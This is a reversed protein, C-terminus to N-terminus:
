IAPKILRSLDQYLKRVSTKGGFVLGTSFNFETPSARWDYTLLFWSVLLIELAIIFGMVLRWNQQPQRSIVYFLLVAEALLLFKAWAANRDYAVWVGACATILFFAMPLDLPTSKFPFVGALLRGLGPLLSILLLWGSAEPLVMMMAGCTFVLGLEAIAYWRRNVWDNM